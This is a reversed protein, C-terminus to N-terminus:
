LWGNWRYWVRKVAEGSLLWFLPWRESWQTWRKHADPIPVPVVDLGAKRATAYARGSHYDSTVLGAPQGESELLPKSNRINELTNHSSSETVMADAPVGMGLLYDRMAEALSPSGAGAGSLVIRKVSGTRWFQATYQLRLYTSYGVVGAAQEDGGLVLLLPPPDDTWRSELSRTWWSELPTFSIVAFSIVLLLAIRQLLIVMIANM